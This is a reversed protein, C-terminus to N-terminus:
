PVTCNLDQETQLYDFNGYSNPTQTNAYLKVTVQMGTNYRGEAASPFQTDWRGIIDQAFTWNTPSPSGAGRQLNSAYNSLIDSRDLQSWGDMTVQDKQPNSYGEPMYVRFSVKTGVPGSITGTAKIDFTIAGNTYGSAIPPAKTVVCVATAVKVVAKELTTTTPTPSATPVATIRLQVPSCAQAGNKDM